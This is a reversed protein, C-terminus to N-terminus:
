TSSSVQESEATSTTAENLRKRWNAVRKIYNETLQVIKKALRKLERPRAGRSSKRAYRTKAARLRKGMNGPKRKALNSM